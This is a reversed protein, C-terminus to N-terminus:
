KLRTIQKGGQMRRRTRRPKYCLALSPMFSRIIVLSILKLARYTYIYRFWIGGSAFWYASPLDISDEVLTIYM